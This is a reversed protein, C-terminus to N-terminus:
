KEKANYADIVQQTLDIRRSAYLLSSETKELIVDYDGEAGIVDIVEFIEAIIQKTFDADKQQLEEQIDKTFRELEKVQQQYERAKQAKADESLLVAQKEIDQKMSLLADQKEKVVLEYKKVQESIEQKAKAGADSLNLAKQLDIYAVGGAAFLTTASFLLTTLVLALTKM